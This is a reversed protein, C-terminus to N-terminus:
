RIADIRRQLNIAHREAIARRTLAHEAQQRYAEADDKAAKLGIRLYAVYCAAVLRRFIRAPTPAVTPITNM